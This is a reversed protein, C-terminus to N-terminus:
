EGVTWVDHFMQSYGRLTRRQGNKSYANNSHIEIVVIDYIDDMGAAVYRLLKDTDKWLSM